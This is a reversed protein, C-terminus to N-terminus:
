QEGVINYGDTSGRELPDTAQAATAEISWTVIFIIADGTLQKPIIAQEVVKSREAGGVM